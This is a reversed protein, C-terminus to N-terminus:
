WSRRSSRRGGPGPATRSARRWRGRPTSSRTPRRPRRRVTGGCRRPGTTRPPSPRTAPGRLRKGGTVPGRDEAEVVAPEPRRRQRARLPPVARGRRRRVGPLAQPLKQDGHDPIQVAPQLGGAGAAPGAGGRRLLRRGRVPTRRRGPVGPLQPGGVRRRRPRLQRRDGRSEPVRQRRPGPRGRLAGAGGGPRRRRGRGGLGRRRPPLRAPDPLEDLADVPLTARLFRRADDATVGASLGQDLLFIKTAVAVVAGREDCVPGGSNGPNVAADFLLMGDAQGAPLGVVSGGTAKLGGGLADPRPFGLALVGAALRPPADALPVAPANLGPSKLLALDRDSSVAVLEAEFEAGGVSVALRDYRRGLNVGAPDDGDGPVAVHRNTLVFGPAVCFGSGYGVTVYDGGGPGAAAPAPGPGDQAGADTRAGTRDLNVALPDVPPLVLWGVTREHGGGGAAFDAYLEGLRKADRRGASAFGAGALYNARGVNHALQPSAPAVELAAEWARIAARVDGTKWEALALNNLAAVNGPRRRLAEAFHRKAGSLAAGRAAAADWLPGALTYGVGLWLDGLIGDPDADAAAEFQQRAAGLNGVEMALLGARVATAARTRRADREAPAVWGRGSRVEGAAAHPRVEERAKEVLAAAAGDLDRTREFRDLAALVGAATQLEAAAKVAVVADRADAEPKQGAAPEPIVDRVGPGADAVVRVVAVGGAGSGAGAVPVPPADPVAGDVASAGADAVAPAEAPPAPAPDAPPDAPPPVDGLRGTFLPRSPAPPGGARETIEPEPARLRRKADALLALAPGTDAAGGAKSLAAELVAEAKEAEGFQLHLEARDVAAALDRGAAATSDEPAAEPGAAPGGCGGVALAGALATVGALKRFRPLRSGASRVFASRVPASRNM